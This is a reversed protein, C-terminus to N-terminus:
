KSPTHIQPQVQAHSAHVIHEHVGLQRTPEEMHPVTPVREDFTTTTITITIRPPASAPEEGPM